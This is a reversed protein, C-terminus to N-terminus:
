TYIKQLLRILTNREAASLRATADLELQEATGGAEVALAAGQATLHLGVARGDNPHPQREILGRRELTAVIGVLNPPLVNLTACLQRSTIGPNSEVLRLVSFDVVNLAYPAMREMFVGVIALSARRVNYGVLSRLAHTDVQPSPPSTVPSSPPAATKRTRLSPM